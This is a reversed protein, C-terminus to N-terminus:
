DDRDTGLVVYDKDLRVDWETGDAKTVEVEFGLEGGHHEREVDTVTGGGLEDIAAKKAARTEAATLPKDDGDRDYGDDSDRDDYRDDDPGDTKSSMVNYDKDLHLDVETGDKRTVEVEYHGDDEEAETVTGGGVAEIAAQSVKDRQSGVLEDDGSGNAWVAGGIGLVALVAVAPVLVRRSRWSRRDTGATTADHDHDDHFQQTDTM